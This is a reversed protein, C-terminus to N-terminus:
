DGLEKNILKKLDRLKEIVKKCFQKERDNTILMEIYNSETNLLGKMKRAYERNEPSVRVYLIEKKM